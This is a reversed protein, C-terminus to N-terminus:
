PKGIASVTRTAPAADITRITVPVPGLRITQGAAIVTAARVPHDDVFTGNKSDLDEITARGNEVRIRAHRRSVGPADLFVAADPDRGLVHEGDLLLAHGGTWELRVRAGRAPVGPRTPSDRFAYGFRHVTRIFRSQQPTDGLALRIEAVLNTLNKDVVFTDPWLLGHLDSKSVASPKARVLASLLDYAKPSLPVARGDRSLERADLDIVFEGFSVRSAM